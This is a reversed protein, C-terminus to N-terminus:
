GLLSDVARRALAALSARALGMTETASAETPASQSASTGRNASYFDGRKASGPATKNMRAPTLTTVLPAGGQVVPVYLVHQLCM